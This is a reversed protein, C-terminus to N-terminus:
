GISPPLIGGMAPAVGWVQVFRTVRPGRVMVPLEGTTPCGVAYGTIAEFSANLRNWDELRLSSLMTERSRDHTQMVRVLREADPFPLPQFLAADIASFVASNAGIGLALTLM